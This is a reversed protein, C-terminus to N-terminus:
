IGEGKLWVLIPQVAPGCLRRIGEVVSPVRPQLWLCAYAGAALLWAGALVAVDRRRCSKWLLAAQWLLLLGWVAMMGVLKVM